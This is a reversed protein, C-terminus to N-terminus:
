TNMKPDEVTHATDPIEGGENEWREIARRTVRRSKSPCSVWNWQELVSIKPHHSDYGLISHSATGLPFHQGAALALGIWRAALASGFHGHTFIAVDGDLMRLRAILRDARETIQEPSEGHPCGDQFVNWDMRHKLIETSTKGEYDGYDWESLDEDIEVAPELDVLECTMRARELPSTLVQSFSIQNLTKGLNRAEEEGQATLPLDTQGTHQGTISWETEGHRFLHLHLTKSPLTSM